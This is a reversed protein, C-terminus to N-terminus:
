LRKTIIVKVMPWSALLSIVVKHSANAILGLLKCLPGVVFKISGVYLNHNVWNIFAKHYGMEVRYVLAMFLVIFIFGLAITVLYYTVCTDFSFLVSPTECNLM